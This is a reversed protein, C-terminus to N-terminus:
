LTGRLWSPIRVIPQTALARAQKHGRPARWLNKDPAHQPALEDGTLVAPDFEDVSAADLGLMRSELIEVLDSRSWSSGGARGDAAVLAARHEVNRALLDRDAFKLHVMYLEPDIRFSGRIGHSSHGWPTSVQKVVPKCMLPAFQALSRQALLPRSLDLTAEEGVHHLVNLTLVGLIPDDPRRALHAGLSGYRHHPVVFEDADAFLVWDHTLLLEEAARTVVRMRAPEFRQGGPLPAVQRVECPLGSTSGDTSGDDLVLLHDHGVQAGYHRVWTPLWAAEDRVMTVVGVSAETSTRRRSPLLRM